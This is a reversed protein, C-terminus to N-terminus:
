PPFQITGIGQDIDVVAAEFDRFKVRPQGNNWNYSCPSFEITDTSYNRSNIESKMEQESDFLEFNGDPLQACIGEHWQNDSIM